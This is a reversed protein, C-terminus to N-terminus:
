LGSTAGTTTTVSGCQQTVYDSVTKADAEISSSQALTVISQELQTFSTSNKIATEYSGVFGFLGKMAAQVNAPAGKLAAEAQGEEKQSATIAALMAQQAAAYDNSQAGALMAKEIAAGVNGSSSEASIVDLCLSSGPALGKASTPKTTTTMHHKPKHHKSKHSTASAAAMPAVALAFGVMTVSCAQLVRRRGV